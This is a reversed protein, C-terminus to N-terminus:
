GTHNIKDVHLLQPPKKTLRRCDLNLCAFGDLTWQFLKLFGEVKVQSAEQKGLLLQM